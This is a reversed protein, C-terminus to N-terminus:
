DKKEEKGCVEEEKYWLVNSVKRIVIINWLWEPESFHAVQFGKPYSHLHSIVKESFNRMTVLSIRCHSSTLSFGGM